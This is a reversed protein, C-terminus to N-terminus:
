YYETSKTRSEVILLYKMIRVYPARLISPSAELLELDALRGVGVSQEGNSWKLLKKKNQNANGMEWKGM